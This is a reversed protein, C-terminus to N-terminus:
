VFDTELLLSILFHIFKSMSMFGIVVSPNSRNM